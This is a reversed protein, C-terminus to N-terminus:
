WGNPSDAPVSLQDRRTAPACGASGPPSQHPHDPRTLEPWVVKALAARNVAPMPALSQGYHDLAMAALWLADAQDNTAVQVLQGLRREAQLLVADKAANGKGTAYLKLLAPPVLVHPVRSSLWFKIIGHLEALPLTNSNHGVYIGEIVVLDPVHQILANCIANL